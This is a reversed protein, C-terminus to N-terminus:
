LPIGSRSSEYMNRGVNDGGTWCELAVITGATGYHGVSPCSTHLCTRYGVHKATLPCTALRKALPNAPSLSEVAPIQLSSASM